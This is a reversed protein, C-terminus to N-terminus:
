PIFFPKRALLWPESTEERILNWTGWRRGGDSGNVTANARWLKEGGDVVANIMWMYRWRWRRGWGDGNISKCHRLWLTRTSYSVGWWLRCFWLRVLRLGVLEEPKFPVCFIWFGDRNRGCDRFAAIERLSNILDIIEVRMYYKSIQVAPLIRSCVRQKGIAQQTYYQVESRKKQWCLGTYVRRGVRLNGVM